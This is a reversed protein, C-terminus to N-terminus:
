KKEKKDTTIYYFEYLNGSSMTRYCIIYREEDEYTYKLFRCNGVYYKIIDQIELDSAKSWENMFSDFEEAPIYTYDQPENISTNLQANEKYSIAVSTKGDERVANPYGALDRPFGTSQERNKNVSNELIKFDDPLDVSYSKDESQIPFHLTNEEAAFAASSLSLIFLFVLAVITKKSKRM